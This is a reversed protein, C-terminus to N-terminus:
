AGLTLRSRAHQGAYPLLAAIIVKQLLNPTAQPVGWRSAAESGVGREAECM